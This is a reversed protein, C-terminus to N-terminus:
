REILVDLGDLSAHTAIRDIWPDQQGQPQKGGDFADAAGAAQRLQAGAIEGIQPEAALHAHVAVQEVRKAAAMRLSEIPQHGLRDANQQVMVQDAQRPDSLVPHPHSSRRALVRKTTLRRQFVMQLRGALLDLAQTLFPIVIGCAAAPLLRGPLPGGLFAQSTQFLRDGFAM